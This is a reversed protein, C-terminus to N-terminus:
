KQASRLSLVSRIRPDRLYLSVCALVALLLPFLGGQVDGIRAHAAFAAALFGSALICGLAATRPVVYLLACALELLGVPVLLCRALAASGGGDLDGGPAVDHTELVAKM